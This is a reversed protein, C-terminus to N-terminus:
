YEAPVDAYRAKDPLFQVPCRPDSVSGERNLKNKPLSLFRTHTLNPDNVAGIMLQFDCAGQKGTKSDKLMSKTPFQMGDGEASIQSTAFCITAYRVAVERAWKYMEELQLDTRAAGSFGRINDIMDYVIIGPNNEQIIREVQATNYGHINFVRVRDVRGVAEAYQARLQGQTNLEVLKAIGVGLASQYIRKVIRGSPGENNLWIINKDLPLQQCMFTIESAIFSTKGTDPRGAIIGFDGERLPRMCANLCDLRWRLGENNLDEQLLDNIDTSDWTTTFGSGSYKFKSLTDTVYDSFPADLDGNHYKECVNALNSALSYEHLEGLISDKDEESVDDGLARRILDICVNLHAEDQTKYWEKFRPGLTVMDIVEAHPFTEFFRAFGAFIVKFFPDNLTASPILGKYSQFNKKHKLISLLKLDLM